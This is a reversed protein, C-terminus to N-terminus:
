SPLLVSDNAWHFPQFDYKRVLDPFEPASDPRLANAVFKVTESVGLSVQIM